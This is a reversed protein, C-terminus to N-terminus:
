LFGYTVFSTPGQNIVPSGVNDVLDLPNGYFLVPERYRKNNSSLYNLNVTGDEQDRKSHFLCYM